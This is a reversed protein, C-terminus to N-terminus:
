EYLNYFKFSINDWNFNNFNIDEIIKIDSKNKFIRDISNSISNISYSTAGIIYNNSFYGDIGQNKSYIVPINQTLAEIYAIGFTEKHSVMIFLNTNSYIEILENFKKFPHIILNIKYIKSILYLFFLFFKNGNGVVNYIIKNKYNLKNIAFLVSLINKNYNINSVQLINFYKNNKSVSQINNLWFKDIGNPIVTIKSNFLNHYENPVYYLLKSRYVPSIILINKSNLLINIAINRYIFLYKFFINIDVNRVSITYPINYKLYLKYSIIGDSFLTHAHSHNILTFDIKNCLDNFLKNSKNLYFFKDFYNLKCSNIIKFNSQFTYKYNNRIIAFVINNSINNLSTFLNKYFKNTYFANCIHLVNLM